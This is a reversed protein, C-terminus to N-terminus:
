CHYLQGIALNQITLNKKKLDGTVQIIKIIRVHKWFM